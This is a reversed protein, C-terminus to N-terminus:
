AGKGSKLGFVVALIAGAPIGIQMLLFLYMVIESVMEPLYGTLALTSLVGVTTGVLIFFVLSGLLIKYSMEARPHGKIPPSNIQGILLAVVAIALSVMTLAVNLFTQLLDSM